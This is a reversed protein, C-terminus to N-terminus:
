RGHSEEEYGYIVADCLCDPLECTATRCRFQRSTKTETVWYEATYDRPIDQPDIELELRKGSDDSRPTFKM